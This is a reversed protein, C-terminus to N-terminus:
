KHGLIELTESALGYLLPAAPDRYRFVVFRADAFVAGQGEQFFYSRPEILTRSGWDDVRLAVQGAELRPTQSAYGVLSAIRRADLSLIAWRRRAPEAEGEATALDRPGDAEYGLAMFDGQMLSRPDVPRMALYFDQGSRYVGEFGLVARGAMVLAVLVSALIGLRYIKTM